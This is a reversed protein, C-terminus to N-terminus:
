HHGIKRAILDLVMRLEHSRNLESLAQARDHLDKVRAPDLGGKASLIDDQKALLAQHLPAFQHKMGDMQERSITGLLKAEKLDLLGYKAKDQPRIGDFTSGGNEYTTKSWTHPQHGADYVLVPGPANVGSRGSQEAYSMSLHLSASLDGVRQEAGLGQREPHQGAVWVEGKQSYSSLGHGSSASTGHFAVTPINGGHAGVYDNLAQRSDNAMSKLQHVPANTMQEPTPMPLDPPKAYDANRSSTLNDGRGDSAGNAMAHEGTPSSHDGYLRATAAPTLGSNLSAQDSVVSGESGARYQGGSSAGSGSSSGSGGHDGGTMHRYAQTSSSDGVSGMNIESHLAMGGDTPRGSNQHAADSNYIPTPRDTPAM